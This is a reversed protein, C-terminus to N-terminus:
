RGKEFYLAHLRARSFLRAQLIGLRRRDKNKPTFISIFLSLVPFIFYCPRLCLTSLANRVTPVCAAPPRKSTLHLNLRSVGQREAGKAFPASQYFRAAQRM